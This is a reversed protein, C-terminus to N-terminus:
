LSANRRNEKRERKHYADTTKESKQLREKMRQLKGGLRVIANLANVEETTFGSARTRILDDVKSLEAQIGSIKVRIELSDQKSIKM